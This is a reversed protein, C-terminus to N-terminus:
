RPGTSRPSSKELLGPEPGGAAPEQLPITPSLNLELWFASVAKLAQVLDPHDVAKLLYANAGLEYARDVDSRQNSSTFMVVPTRSIEPTRRIWRLVEFGSRKPLKLDLLVLSPFPHVSRDAYAGSGSLYAVAEDGDRALRPRGLGAKQIAREILFVDDLDDEVWLMTANM